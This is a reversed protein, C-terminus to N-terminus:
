TRSPWVGRAPPSASVRFGRAPRRSIFCNQGKAGKKASIQAQLALCALDGAFHTTVPGTNIVLMAADLAQREM